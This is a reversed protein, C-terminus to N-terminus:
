QHPDFFFFLIKSVFQYFFLSLPIMLQRLLLCLLSLHHGCEEIGEGKGKKVEVIRKHEEAGDLGRGDVRRKEVM